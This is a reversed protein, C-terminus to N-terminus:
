PPYCSIVVLEAVRVAEADRVQHHIARDIVMEIMINGAIVPWGLPVTPFRQRRSMLMMLCCISITNRHWHVEEGAGLETTANPMRSIICIVGQHQNVMRGLRRMPPATPLVPRAGM